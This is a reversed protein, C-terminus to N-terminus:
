MMKSKLDQGLLMMVHGKDEATLSVWVASVQGDEYGVVVVGRVLHKHEEWLVGFDSDLGDFLPDFGRIQATNKLIYTASKAM